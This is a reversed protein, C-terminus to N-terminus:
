DEQELMGVELHLKNEGYIESFMVDNLQGHAHHGPIFVGLDLDVSVLDDEILRELLLIAHEIRKEPTKPLNM